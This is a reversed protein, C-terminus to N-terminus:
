YYYCFCMRGLYANVNKICYTNNQIKLNYFGRKITVTPFLVAFVYRIGQIARSGDTPETGGNLLLLQLFIWIVDLFAMFGLLIALVVFGIIESKFLFSWMYAYSCWSFMAVLMLFFLYGLSDDSAIPYIEASPDNRIANVIKLAIMMSSVIIFYVCLDFIFNSTWYTVYHTGTLFQLQKSGNARERGM